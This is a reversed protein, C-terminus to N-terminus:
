VGCGKKRKIKEGKEEITLSHLKFQKSYFPLPTPHWSKGLFSMSVLWIIRYSTKFLMSLAMDFGM